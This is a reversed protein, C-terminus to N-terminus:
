VGGGGGQAAPRLEFRQLGEAVHGGIDPFSFQPTVFPLNGVHEVSARAVQADAAPQLIFGHNLRSLLRPM